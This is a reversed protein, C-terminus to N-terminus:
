NARAYIAQLVDTTPRLNPGDLFKQTAGGISKMGHHCAVVNNVHM